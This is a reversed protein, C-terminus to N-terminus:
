QQATNHRALTRAILEDDTIRGLIADVQDAVDARTPNWGAHVNNAIANHLAWAAADDLQEFLDPYTRPWGLAAVDASLAM